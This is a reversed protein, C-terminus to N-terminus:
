SPSGVRRVPWYVLVAEGVIQDRKLTGWQRSDCAGTRNDALVFYRGRPVHWTGSGRDRHQVFADGLPQGNVVFRGSTETVSDGPLGVLRRFTTGAEACLGVSKPAHLAVIDGRGLTYFLHVVLVRDSSGGQCGRAPKACHLTPEMAPTSVTYRRSIGFFFFLLGVVVLLSLILSGLVRPRRVLGDEGSRRDACPGAAAGPKFVM